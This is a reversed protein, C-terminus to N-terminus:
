LRGPSRDGTHRHDRTQPFQVASEGAAAGHAFFRGGDATVSLAMRGIEGGVGDFVVEFPGRVRTAWEPDRYDVALHAGLESVAATKVPGGAAGVVFAGASRTLPV